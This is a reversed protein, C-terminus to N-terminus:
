HGGPIQVFILQVGSTNIECAQETKGETLATDPRMSDLISAVRWTHSKLKLNFLIFFDGTKPAM